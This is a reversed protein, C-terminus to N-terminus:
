AAKTTPAEEFAIAERVKKVSTYYDEAIANLSEGARRRQAIVATPIATGALCPKGFSVSPDVVIPKYRSSVVGSRNTMQPYFREFGLPGKDVRALLDRIVSELVFQGSRTLNVSRTGHKVYLDGTFTFLDAEVIPHSVNLLNQLYQISRRVKPMSLQHKRRLQVIVYSEILNYFSLEFLGHSDKPIQFLPQFGPQGRTWARLTSVPLRLSLAVDDFSYTSLERPDRGGYIDIAGQDV